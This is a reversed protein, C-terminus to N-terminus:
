PESASVAEHEKPMGPIAERIYGSSSRVLTVPDGVQWRKFDSEYHPAFDHTKKMGDTPDLYEISVSYSVLESLKKLSPM